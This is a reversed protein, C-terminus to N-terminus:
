KSLSVQSSPKNAASASNISTIGEFPKLLGSLGIRPLLGWVSTPTHMVGPATADDITLSVPSIKGFAELIGPPIAVPSTLLSAGRLVLSVANSLIFNAVGCALFVGITIIGAAIVPLLTVLPVVVPAVLFGVAAAVALPVALLFVIVLIISGLLGISPTM